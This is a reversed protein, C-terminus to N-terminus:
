AAELEDQDKWRPLDNTGQEIRHILNALEDQDIQTSEEGFYRAHDSTRRPASLAEKSLWTGLIAEHMKPANSKMAEVDLLHAEAPHDRVAQYQKRGGLAAFGLVKRYYGSHRPNV